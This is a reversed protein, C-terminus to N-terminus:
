KLNEGLIRATIDKTAVIIDLGKADVITVEVNKTSKNTYTRIKNVSVKKGITNHFHSRKDGNSITVKYDGDRYMENVRKVLLDDAIVFTYIENDYVYYDFVDKGDKVVAKRMTMGLETFLSDLYYNYVVFYYPNIRHQKKRWQRWTANLCYHVIEGLVNDVKFEELIEVLSGYTIVPNDIHIWNLRPIDKELEFFKVDEFGVRFAYAGSSHSLMIPSGNPDKEHRGLHIDVVSDKGLKGLLDMMVPIERTIHKGRQEQLPSRSMRGITIAYYGSTGNEREGTFIMQFEDEIVRFLVQEYYMEITKLLRKFSNPEHLRTGYIGRVGKLREPTFPADSLGEAKTIVPLKLKKKGNIQFIAHHDRVESLTVSKVQRNELSHSLVTVEDDLDSLIVFGTSKDHPIPRQRKYDNVLVMITRGIIAVVGDESIHLADGTSRNAHTLM